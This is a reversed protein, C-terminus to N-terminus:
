ENIVNVQCSKMTQLASKHSDPTVGACCSADVTVKVNADFAKILLANSVVCIDTCVGILEVEDYVGKVFSALLKSGFTSKEFPITEKTYDKLEPIIDHGSTGKICHKVPLNIGEQTELYNDYHTDQTFFVKYGYKIYEEVKKVVNPVIKIAEENRLAGTVFDNQMDIVVLVKKM